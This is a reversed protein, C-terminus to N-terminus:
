QKGTEQNEVRPLSAEKLKMFVENRPGFLEARGERMLLIKDLEKLIAPKHTILVVTTGQERLSKLTLLLQGEGEADLNANPEDLVVFKPSGFLARALGIRQMQGGSLVYGGPGIPTDYGKPLHLILEHVHALQAAAIVKESDVPGMRAINEAITGPFLEVDQPLYGIHPGLQARDTRAMDAGDLRVSGATPQWIGVMLRALSSKGSASPGIIALSEGATLNFSIQRIIPRDASKSTLVLNDVSLQGKPTPLTTPASPPTNEFFHQLRGFALRAQVFNNWNAILSEFPALARGLIITCAVMIGSSMHQDIVLYAGTTMMAIQIAQRVFRTISSVGGMRQATALSNDLLRNNLRNWQAVINPAMGMANIADANAIGQDIYHSARRADTQNSEVAPRNTRENYAALALLTLGGLCAVLGLLPHFLFILAIYVLMWPLDFLAIISAGGLFGRLAAVDRLGHIEESRNLQSGKEILSTIVKEGLLRDLTTGAHMLLQSRLYDLALSLLLVFLTILSLLLLTSNSRSTLVRDFVQLMYLSPVLLALNIFISFLGANLFFVRFRKYFANM